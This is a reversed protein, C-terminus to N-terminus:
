HHEYTARGGEGIRRRLQADDAALAVLEAIGEASRGLLANKMHMVEPICAAYNAHAIVCAGLSWAYLVRTHGIQFEPSNNNVTLFIPTSCMERVLDPVYGRLKMKPHQLLRAVAPYPTGGGCIHVEFPRDGLRREIAPVVEKALYYLGFTTGTASLRGINGILTLPREVEYTQRLSAWRDGVVDPVLNQFYFARPHGMETYYTAARADSIPVSACTRIMALHRRRLRANALRQVTLNLKEKATRDPIGFLAPQRLRAQMPWHDPTGYFAVKPIRRIRSSAVLGEPTAHLLAVDANAHLMREDLEQRLVGSASELLPALVRIGRQRLDRVQETERDTMAGDHFASAFIVQLTIDHGRQAIEQLLQGGVAYAASGQPDPIAPAIFFIRM